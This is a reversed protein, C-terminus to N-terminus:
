FGGQKRPPFQDIIPEVRAYILKTLIGFPNCLLSIPGYSKTDAILMNPKPIAVVSARRCIKILFLFKNLRSKLAAAACLILEPCMSDSDPAKGSNLLQFVSSFKKPFFDAPFM